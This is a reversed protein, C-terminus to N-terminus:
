FTTHILKGGVGSLSSAWWIRKRLADCKLHIGETALPYLTMILANQKEKDFMEILHNQFAPFEFKHRNDTKDCKRMLTSIVFIVNNPLLNTTLQVKINSKVKEIAEKEECETLVKDLRTKEKELTCDIQTRVFYFRVSKAQIQKALQLDTDHFADM